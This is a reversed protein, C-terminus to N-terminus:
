MMTAMVAGGLMTVVGSAAAARRAMGIAAVSLWAPAAAAGPRPPQQQEKKAPQHPCVVTISASAVLSTAREKKGLHQRGTGTSCGELLM